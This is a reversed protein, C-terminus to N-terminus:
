LRSSRKLPADKQPVHSAQCIEGKSLDEVKVGGIGRARNMQAINEEREKLLITQFKTEAEEYEKLKNDITRISIGLASATQTKNGHNLKLCENIVLKELQALTVGPQWMIM